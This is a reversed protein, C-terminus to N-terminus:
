QVDKQCNAKQSPWNPAKFVTPDLAHTPITYMMCYCIVNLYYEYYVKNCPTNM